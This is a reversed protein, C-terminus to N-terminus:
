GVCVDVGLVPGVTAGVRIGDCGDASPPPVPLPTPGAPATTTTPTHPETATPGTTRPIRATPVPEAAPRAAEPTPTPSPARKPTGAPTATPRVPHPRPQPTDHRTTPKPRTTSREWPAATAILTVTAPVTVTHVALPPRVPLPNKSRDDGEAANFAIGAAMTASIVITPLPNQRARRTAWSVSDAVVAVPLMVGTKIARLIAVGTKHPYESNLITITSGSDTAIRMGGIEPELQEREMHHVAEAQASWHCSRVRITNWIASERAVGTSGTALIAVTVTMQPLPITTVTVQGPPERLAHALRAPPTTPTQGHTTIIETTTNLLALLKDEKTETIWEKALRIFSIKHSKV